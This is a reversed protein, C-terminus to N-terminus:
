HNRRLKLTVIVKPAIPSNSIFVQKSVLDDREAYIEYDFQANLLTFTFRGDRGTRKIRLTRSHTDKLYVWAFGAASGKEDVVNGRVAFVGTQGKATRVV